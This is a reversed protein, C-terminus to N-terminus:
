KENEQAELNDIAQQALTQKGRNTLRNYFLETLDKPKAKENEKRHIYQLFSDIQDEWDQETRNPDEPVLGGIEIWSTFEQLFEKKTM